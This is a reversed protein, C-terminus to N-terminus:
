VLSVVLKVPNSNFVGSFLSLGQSPKSAPEIKSQPNIIKQQHITFPLNNSFTLITLTLKIMRKALISKYTLSVREDYAKKVSM